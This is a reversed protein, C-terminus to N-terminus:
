RESVVGVLRLCEAVSILFRDSRECPVARLYELYAGLTPLSRADVRVQAALEGLRFASAPVLVALDRLELQLQAGDCCLGQVTTPELLTAASM